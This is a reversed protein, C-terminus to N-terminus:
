ELRALAQQLPCTSSDVARGARYEALLQRAAQALERRVQRRRGKVRAIPMHDYATTQHRLWALVAAEARQAVPIRRTRAVTGSGVPTSHATVARALREAVEQYCPAFSLYARVSAEFTGVYEEQQRARREQEVVRKRAYSPTARESSLAARIEAVVEGPAWLGRSFLKRGRREQVLWTTTAAKLRRTLAPDGPPVLIWGVPPRQVVGDLTRVTGAEPGPQVVVSASGM